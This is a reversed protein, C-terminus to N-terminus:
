PRRRAKMMERAAARTAETIEVGGVMRALERERQEGAAESVETRTRGKGIKKQVVLHRAALGAIQPLHTICLVQHHRAVEVLKRGVIEAQAGGIGADIEDFVLSPIYFAKALSNKIALMIRSLEGGSAIKALSRPTEGPNASLLFECREGGYEDFRKGSLEIGAGDSPPDFRVSFATGKMGLDALEARVKESLSKAAALRKHTLEDALKILETEAARLREKVGGIGMSIDSLSELERKAEEVTRLVAELAGGYKKSFARITELRSEIRELEAPDRFLKDLYSDAARGAEAASIAISEVAAAVPEFAPDVRAAESARRSLLGCRDSISNESEYFAAVVERAAAALKEASNLIRRRELLEEDERPTLKASEIDRIVFKLYDARAVSESARRELGTLERRLALVNQFRGAFDTKKQRLGGFEDLIGLHNDSELLGRSDHQGFISVLKEGTEVLRALPMSRGGIFARHRGSASVIRRLSLLNDELLGEDSLEKKLDDLSTLDFVVEIEAQEAGTRITEANARAGLALSLANVLITKGAGTEGTLVNFGPGLAIKLDDIIALNKVTLEILL